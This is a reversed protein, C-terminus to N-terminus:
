AGPTAKRELFGELILHATKGEVPFLPKGDICIEPYGKTLTGNQELDGLIWKCLQCGPSDEDRPVRARLKEKLREIEQATDM